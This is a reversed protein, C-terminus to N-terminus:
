GSDRATFIAATGRRSQAKVVLAEEATLRPRMERGVVAAQLAAVHAQFKVRKAILGLPSMEFGDVDPDHPRQYKAEFVARYQEVASYLQEGYERRGALDGPRPGQVEAL